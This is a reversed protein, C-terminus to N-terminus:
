LKLKNYILKNLLYAGRKNLVQWNQAFGKHSLDDWFLHIEALNTVLLTLLVIGPLKHTSIEAMSERLFLGHHKILAGAVVKGPFAESFLAHSHSEQGPLYMETSNCADPCYARGCNHFGLYDRLVQDPMQTSQIFHYHSSFWNPVRMTGREWTRNVLDLYAMRLLQGHDWANVGTAYNCDKMISILQSRM